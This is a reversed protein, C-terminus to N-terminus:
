PGDSMSEFIEQFRPYKRLPDLDRDNEIWSQSIVSNALLDLAQEHKEPFKAYFCASNYRTAPDDPTLELARDTWELSKSENGLMYWGAAGLYYARQNDPYDELVHEAREVGIRAVRRSAETDGVSHYITTALLPSVFDDPDFEAAKEFHEAAEKVHGQHQLARGLYHWARALTPDLELAKRLVAEAETFRERTAHAYGRALFSEAREPALRTAEDAAEYAIARWKEAKSFFLAYLSSHEAMLVWARLFDPDAEVAKRLMDVSLEMDRKGGSLAYGLARLFYQYAVANETTADVLKEPGLQCKMAALIHSAIDDQIAFIDDLERDYTESWLHSDSEAEILQATVRIKNGSKRVSGELIHAVQLKDAAEKLDVEKGKFSFSSTRSAVRLKPIRTLVNLLEETLGDCFHEQDKEASMDPFPLVAISLGEPTVADATKEIGDPTIDFGWALIAALPLGLVVLVIVLTLSWDPLGMPAFTTEAVQILLWGVIVYAVVVRIVKRRKLEELFAPMSGNYRLSAIIHRNPILSSAIEWPNTM